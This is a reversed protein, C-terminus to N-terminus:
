DSRPVNRPPLSRDQGEYYHPAEPKTFAKYAFLAGLALLAAFIAALLEKPPGAEKQRKKRARAMVRARMMDDIDPGEGRLFELNKDYASRKADVSLVSYAETIKQYVDLSGSPGDPHFKKVLKRYAARIQEDTANQPVGLTDYHTKM